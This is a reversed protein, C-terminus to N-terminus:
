PEDGSALPIREVRNKLWRSIGQLETAAVWEGSRIDVHLMTLFKGLYEIAEQLNSGYGYVSIIPVGIVVRPEPDRFEWLDLECSLAGDGVHIHASRHGRYADRCRVEINQDHERALVASRALAEPEVGRAVLYGVYAEFHRRRASQDGFDGAVMSWRRVHEEVPSVYHLLDADSQALELIVAHAERVFWEAECAEVAHRFAEDPRNAELLAEAYFALALPSRGRKLRSEFHVLAQGILQEAQAQEGKAKRLRALHTQANGIVSHSLPYYTDARANPLSQAKREYAVSEELLREQDRDSDESAYQAMAATFHHIKFCERYRHSLMKGLEFAERAQGVEAYFQILAIMARVLRTATIVKTAPLSASANEFLEIVNKRSIGKLLKYMPLCHDRFQGMYAMNTELSHALHPVIPAAVTLRISEERRPEGKLCSLLHGAAECWQWTVEFFTRRDLMRAFLEGDALATALDDYRGARVWHTLMHSLGYDSLESAGGAYEVRLMDALREHGRKQSVYYLSGQLERSTLWEALSNHYVAYRGRRSPVYTSLTRLLRPLDEERELGTVASLQDEELAEQAAFLVQFVRRAAEYTAEDPFRSRFFELYLSQLGPPLEGIRDASYLDREIGDLAEQAYLFSGASKESLIQRVNEVSVGAIALRGALADGQVRSDIFQGVDELNRADHTDVEKARLHRLRELVEPERRTTAVVRLWPPLRELRTALVDLITPGCGPTCLTEDLADILIYRTERPPSPLAHLPSLVGAQFASGPSSACNSISLTEKMAPDDLMAAYADLRSAIMAALSRVFRGPQLTEETDRQCCHYALVQGDRNRHVLEAVIASKGVGPDGTILLAREGAVALWDNIEDFLWQRGCFVRRKHDLFDAFDWPRLDHEWSRYRVEGRLAAEIGELLRELGAGYQGSVQWSCMDVYDLRFLCFPPECAIAMVPVISKPPYAFRAYAVEDLCVSDTDNRNGRDHGGRVAHPTLLAVVVDADRLGDVVEQQWDSGGRIDRTDQWVDCGRATLDSYLREALKSADRRAYSLFVRPM